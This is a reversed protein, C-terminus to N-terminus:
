HHTLGFYALAAGGGVLLAAAVAAAAATAATCRCCSCCRGRASREAERADRRFRAAEVELAQAAPRLRELVVSSNHLQRRLNDCMQARTEDVCRQVEGIDVATFEGDETDRQKERASTGVTAM